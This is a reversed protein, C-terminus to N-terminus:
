EPGRDGGDSRVRYILNRRLTFLEFWQDSYFSNDGRHVPGAPSSGLRRIAEGVQIFVPEEGSDTPLRLPNQREARSGTRQEPIGPLLSVGTTPHRSDLLPM